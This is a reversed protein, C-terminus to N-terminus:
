SVALYSVQQDVSAVKANKATYVLGRRESFPKAFRGKPVLDDDRAVVIHAKVLCNILLMLCFKLISIHNNILVWFLDPLHEFVTTFVHMIQVMGSDLNQAEFDKTGRINDFDALPGKHEVVSFSLCFPSLDGGFSVNEYRM